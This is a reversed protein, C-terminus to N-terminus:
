PIARLRRVTDLCREEATGEFRDNAEASIGYNYLLSFSDNTLDRNYLNQPTSNYIVGLLCRGPKDAPSYEYRILRGEREIEAALEQTTAPGSGSAWELKM